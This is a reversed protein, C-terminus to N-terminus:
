GRRRTSPSKGAGSGSAKEAYSKKEGANVKAATIPKKVKTQPTVKSAPANWYYLVQFALVANLAFGAIFGYLILPDPVEQLTTFIRSLSGLLYNIVAFASLQGTGGQQWVTLIQPVKAAVGMVGAAAQLWALAKVDVIDERSLAFGAAALGGIWAPIGAPKGSYNLVLAAIAINQVLILATEGYTSFPFGHRINYSLSILYAGSELLYSLFSVGSASQSNILKLLQPIKVISSAGIIGIGLGKSIALKVCDPSTFPDIDLILTKYCFPGLLTRGTETIPAPLNHTIPQLASRLAEM